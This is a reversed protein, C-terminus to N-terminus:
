LASRISTLDIADFARLLSAHTLNQIPSLRGLHRVACMEVITQEVDPEPAGNFVVGVVPCGARRLAALSLATHNITGLATRAVLIVPAQWQAFLDLYFADRTLPVMVGGAGEVILPGDVRPLSLRALNIETGMNEASLHPSAPRRLRYTEPLVQCQSLSAVVESDTAEDLGAQVPKWYSAGLAATLGAAFITKGVGTDTGTIVLTNM